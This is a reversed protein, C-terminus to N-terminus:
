VSVAPNTRMWILRLESVLAVIGNKFLVLHLAAMILYTPAILVLAALLLLPLWMEYFRTLFLLGWVNLFKNADARFLNAIPQLWLARMKFIEWCLYLVFLPAVWPAVASYVIVLGLFAVLELPLLVRSMLWTTRAFGYRVAFTQIRAQADSLRDNLEHRLIQRLGLAVSWVGLMAGFGIPTALGCVAAFTVWMVLLPITHAYLADALAGWIGRGKLRLPPISYAGFLIFELAILTWGTTGLPLFLWPVLAAASLGIFFSVRVFRRRPTTNHAASIADVQVDFVDNLLHAFGAIGISAILFLVLAFLATVLPVPPSAEALLFYALALLPPIKADWWQESKLLTRM